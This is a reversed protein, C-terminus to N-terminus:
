CLPRGLHGHSIIGVVGALAGRLALAWWQQAFTVMASGERHPLATCDPAADAAESTHHAPPMDTAHVRAHVGVPAWDVARHAVPDDALVGM